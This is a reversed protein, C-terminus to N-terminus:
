DRAFLFLEAPVWVLENNDAPIHYLTKGGAAGGRDNGRYEVAVVPYSSKKSILEGVFVSTGDKEIRVDKPNVDPKLRVYFIGTQMAVERARGGARCRLQRVM